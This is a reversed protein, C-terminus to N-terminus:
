LADCCVLIVAEAKNLLSCLEIGEKSDAPAIQLSRISILLECSLTLGKTTSWCNPRVSGTQLRSAPYQKRLSTLRLLATVQSLLLQMM